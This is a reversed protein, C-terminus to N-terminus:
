DFYKRFSFRDEFIWIKEFLKTSLGILSGNALACFVTGLKIGEFHWLGFFLFSLAISILCSTCDYATKFKHIDINFKASVEKVFMEYAEPSIYTHFVLSVGMSCILMGVIYFIYKAFVGNLPILVAMAIAGDLM